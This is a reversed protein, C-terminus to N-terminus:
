RQHVIRERVEAWSAGTSAGGGPANLRRDIEEGHWDPLPLTDSAEAEISDWLDLIFTPQRCRECLGAHALSTCHQLRQHGPINFANTVQAILM